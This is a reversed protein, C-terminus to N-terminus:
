PSSCHAISWVFSLHMVPTRSMRLCSIPWNGASSPAGDSYQTRHKKGDGRTGHQSRDSHTAASSAKSRVLTTLQPFNTGYRRPLHTHQPGVSQADNWAAPRISRVNQVGALKGVFVSSVRVPYRGLNRGHQVFEVAPTTTFIAALM